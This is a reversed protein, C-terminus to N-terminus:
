QPGTTSTESHYMSTSDGTNGMPTMESTNSQSRKEVTTSSTTVPQPAVLVPAPNVVVPAPAEPVYTTTHSTEKTTSGCATVFSVAVLSLASIALCQMIKKM